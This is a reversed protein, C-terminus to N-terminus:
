DEDGMISGEVTKDWFRWTGGVAPVYQQVMKKSTLHLSRTDNVDWRGSMLQGSLKVGQYVATLPSELNVPVMVKHITFLSNVPLFDQFGGSGVLNKGRRSDEPIFMSTMASAAVLPAFYKKAIIDYRGQSARQFVDSGVAVPWKTMMTIFPGVDRGFEHM